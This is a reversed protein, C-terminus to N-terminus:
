SRVRREMCHRLAPGVNSWHAHSGDPYYRSGAMPSRGASELDYNFWTNTVDAFAPAVVGLMLAVCCLAAIAFRTKRSNLM